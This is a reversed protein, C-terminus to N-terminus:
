VATYTILDDFTNGVSDDEVIYGAASEYVRTVANPTAGEMVVVSDLTVDNVGEVAQIADIIKNEYLLGNFDLNELYTNIASEVNTQIESPDYIGDHYVTATLRLKSANLSIISIITGAFKIKEVYSELQTLETATLPENSGTEGKAVKITLTGSDEKYAARTIIRKSTDITDYQGTLPNLQDGLQFEKIREIYWSPTGPQKSAIITNVEAKFIDFLTELAHIAFATIFVWLRWIAVQSTSSLGNLETYSQKKTIIETQIQEITRAM